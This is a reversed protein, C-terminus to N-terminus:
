YSRILPAMGQQSLFFLQVPLLAKRICRRIMLLLAPLMLMIVSLLAAAGGGVMTSLWRSDVNRHKFRLPYRCWRICWVATNHIYDGNNSSAPVLQLNQNGDNVVNYLVNLTGNLVLLTMGPQLVLGSLQNFKTTDKAIATESILGGIVTDLSVSDLLSGSESSAANHVDTEVVESADGVESIAVQSTYHSVISGNDVIIQGIPTGNIQSISVQEVVGGDNNPYAYTVTPQTILADVVVRNSGYNYLVMDRVFEIIPRTAQNNFTLGTWALSQEHVWFNHLSWANGDISSRDITTYQPSAVPLMESVLTLRISTGVGDIFYPGEVNGNFICSTDILNVIMGSTLAVPANVAIGTTDLLSPPTSNIIASVGNYTVITVIDATAEATVGAPANTFTIAPANNSYSITYDTNLTQLAGQAGNVSVYVAIVSVDNDPITNISANFTTTYGDGTYNELYNVCGTLNVTAQGLITNSLFNNRTVVVSDGANAPTDLTVTGLKYNDVAGVRNGNVYIVGGGAPFGSITDPMNFVTQGQTAVYSAVPATITLVPLTTNGLWQYQTYNMIKDIDVPPAWTYYQNEFMRTQNTIVAGSNMLYSVFDPYTLANSIVPSGTTATNISVMSPELQYAGREQTPEQIYFDTQPNNYTPVQGIYGSVTTANGPQFVQDVTAGFFKTLKDTQNVVPLFNIFQFTSDSM